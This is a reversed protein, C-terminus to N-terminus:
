HLATALTEVAHILDKWAIEVSEQVKPLQSGDADELDTVRRKFEAFRM